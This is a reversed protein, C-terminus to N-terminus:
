LDPRNWRSEKDSDNRHLCLFGIIGLAEIHPDVDLLVARRDDRFRHIEVKFTVRECKGKTFIGSVLGVSQCEQIGAHVTLRHRLACLRALHLDFFAIWELNRPM